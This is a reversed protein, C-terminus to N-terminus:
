FGGLLRSVALGASGHVNREVELLREAQLANPEPGIAMGLRPNGGRPLCKQHLVVDVAALVVAECERRHIGADCHSEEILVVEVELAM